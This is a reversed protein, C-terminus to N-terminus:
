MGPAQALFKDLTGDGLRVGKDIQRVPESSDTFRERNGDLGDLTAQLAKGYLECAVLWPESDVAFGKYVRDRILKPAGALVDAHVRLGAVANKKDGAKWRDQFEELQDALRPATWSSLDFFALLAKTVQEDGNALLEAYAREAKDEDYARDNWAYDAMEFMAVRSAHAQSMPNALLGEVQLGPERGSYSGLLLRGKADPYDTVPYNDWILTKRGWLEEARKSEARTIAKPVVATGTWMVKVSKDLDDRFVRKYPTPNIDGYETLVTVLPGADPMQNKVTQATDNLLDNQARAANAQSPKGFTDLDEQCNWKAYDIDDLLLAFSRIGAGHLQTLKAQIADRDADKSYCMSLGPALSYTFEIHSAAARKALEGLQNLREDPYPERWRERHYPDDKPAYVYSNFKVSAAFAIQAQQEAYTWQRGYFGEVIGRQRLSPRDDIKVAAVKGQKVLQRLTQAAHHAGAPDASAITVEAPAVNLAYAEAPLGKDTRFRIKLGANGTGGALAKEVVQRTVAEVDGEITVSAPIAVDDGVREIMRPTPWVSVDTARKPVADDGSVLIGATVVAVAVIVAVLLGKKAM